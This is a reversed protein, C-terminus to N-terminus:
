PGPDPLSLPGRRLAEELAATLRGGLGTEGGPRKEDAEAAWAIALRCCREEESIDPFRRAAERRASAPATGDLVRFRAAAQWLTLRGDLLDQVAGEKAVVRRVAQENQRELEAGAAEAQQM